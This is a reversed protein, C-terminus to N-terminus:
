ELTDKPKDDLGKQVKEMLAALELEVEEVTIGRSEAIKEIAKQRVERWPKMLYGVM